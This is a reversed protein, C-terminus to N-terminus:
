APDTRETPDEPLVNEFRKPHLAVLLHEALKDYLSAILLLQGRAEADHTQRATARIKEAEQRYNHKKEPPKSGMFRNM